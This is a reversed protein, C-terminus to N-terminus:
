IIKELLIKKYYKGIKIQFLKRWDKNSIIKEFIEKLYYKGNKIQFLIRRDNELMVVIIDHKDPM